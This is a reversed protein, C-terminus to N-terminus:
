EGERVVKLGVSPLDSLLNDAAGLWVSRLVPGVAHWGGGRTGGDARWLAEALVERLPRLANESLYADVM